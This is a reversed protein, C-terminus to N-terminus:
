RAYRKLNAEHKERTVFKLGEYHDAWYGKLCRKLTYTLILKQDRYFLVKMSPDFGLKELELGIDFEPRTSELFIRLEPIAIQWFQKTKTYRAFYKNNPDYKVYSAVIEKPAECVSRSSRGFSSPLRDSAEPFPFPLDLNHANNFPKRFHKKDSM